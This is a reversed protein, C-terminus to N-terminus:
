VYQMRVAACRGRCRTARTSSAAKPQLVWGALLCILWLQKATPRLHLLGHSSAGTGVHRLRGVWNRPAARSGAAFAPEKYM